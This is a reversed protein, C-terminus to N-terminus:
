RGNSSTDTAEIAATGANWRHSQVRWRRVAQDPELDGRAVAWGIMTRIDEFARRASIPAAAKADIVRTVDRRHLEPLPIHGIIPLVDKRLRREIEKASRLGQINRLYVEALAAITGAEKGERAGIAASRAAALGLSPYRGLTIRRKPSGYTLTWSKTGGKTVRLALGTVKMDVYDTQVTKSKAAQCFRDTLQLRM